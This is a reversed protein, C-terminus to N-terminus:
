KGHKSGGKHISFPSLNFLRREIIHLLDLCFGKEKAIAIFDLTKNALTRWERSEMAMRRRAIPLV